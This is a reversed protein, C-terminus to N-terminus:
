TKATLSYSTVALNAIHHTFNSAAVFSYTNNDNGKTGTAWLACHRGAM